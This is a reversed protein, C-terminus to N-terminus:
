VGAEPEQTSSSLLAGDCGYRTEGDPDMSAWCQGKAMEKEDEPRFANREDEGISGSYCQCCKVDVRLDLCIELM